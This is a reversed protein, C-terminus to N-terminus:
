RSAELRTIQLGLLGDIEVLEGYALRREGQYLQAQGLACGTFSLVSGISLRKLEGVSSNLMGARLTLVLPLDDVGQFVAPADEGPVSFDVDFETDDSSYGDSLSPEYPDTTMPLEECGTLKFRLHKEQTPEQQMQLRCRGVVLSGDGDAAFNQWEALLVDGVRLSLVQAPTLRCGGVVLPIAIVWTDSCPAALPQWDGRELLCLLTSAQLSVRSVCGRGEQQKVELVCDLGQSPAARVVRLPGFAAQLKPDVYANYLSWYWDTADESAASNAIIAPCISFCDLLLKINNLWLTGCESAVATRPAHAFPVPSLRVYLETGPSQAFAMRVGAGLRERALAEEGAMARPRWPHVAMETRM